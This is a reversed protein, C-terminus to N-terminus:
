PSFPSFTTTFFAGRHLGVRLLRLADFESYQLDEIKDSYFARLDGYCLETIMQLPTRVWGLIRLTCPHDLSAGLRIEHMAENLQKESATRRYLKIACEVGLARGKYVEAYAGRGLLDGRHSDKDDIAMYHWLNVRDQSSEFIYGLSSSTSQSQLNQVVAPEIVRAAPAVNTSLSSHGAGQHGQGGFRNQGLAHQHAGFVAGGQDFVQRKQQQQQQQQMPMASMWSTNSQQQAHQHRQLQQQHQQKLVTVKGQDASLVATAPMVESAKSRSNRSEKKKKKKQKKGKKSSGEKAKDNSKDQLDEKSGKEVVNQSVGM